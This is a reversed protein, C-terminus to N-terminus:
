LDQCDAGRGSQRRQRGRRGFLVRPGEM